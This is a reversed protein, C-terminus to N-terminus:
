HEPKRSSLRLALWGIFYGILALAVFAAMIMSAFPSPGLGLEARNSAVISLVIAGIGIGSAMAWIFWVRRYGLAAGAILMVIGFPDLAQRALVASFVVLGTM